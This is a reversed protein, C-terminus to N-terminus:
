QKIIKRSHWGTEDLITLIYIGKAFASCDIKFNTLELRSSFILNGLVDFVQLANMQNTSAITLVNSVPNPTMTVSTSGSFIPTSLTVEDSAVWSSALSNDLTSDSLQLFKGNGDADPWPADDLYEVEDITNGFADALVLKQSSNSLNRTFQGFATLGFRLQFQNLNSALYISQNAAITANNPFKYTIGLEKFYIGTLNVTTSQTNKIAIFELDDNEPFGNTTAPNYNIKEIVLQPITVSSCATFSGLNNTMWLIRQALFTKMNSIELAHNPITGWKQNERIKAENILNVTNDIFAILNAYVLPQNSQQLANWRKSLYCKYTPNTFLDTWFKAGENDGNSFQWVNTRSRDFGWDFLDNGYTLNFDWIPGARLKGNRDKHFFTSLQYGDANSALENMIMFDIFSPVDIISPYGSSLNINNSHSTTALSSFQSYIYTQQLATVEEPKPLDHIFNTEGAYSSMTWAVPDDGTTKDAKTIYGGTINPNANDESTIKLINVRKSDAKIKEQLLYLGQYSGNLVLECYVTRPAYNGLQRSLNYSLYDRILSSDFALGNLIWDNESPMDLLSVNDNSVNDAELTTLGYGKKPLTQSSSGRIEISIRGQYDLFSATNQDTLYNRTGDPRKIIKMAALVRPDDQIEFPQNTNPNIDTNIIVIPLNSSTFIQSQVQDVYLLITLVILQRLLNPNPFRIKM